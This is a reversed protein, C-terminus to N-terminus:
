IIIIDMHTCLKRWIFLRKETLHHKFMQNNRLFSIHGRRSLCGDQIYAGERSTGFTLLLGLHKIFDNCYPNSSNGGGGEGRPKWVLSSHVAIISIRLRLTSGRKVSRFFIETPPFAVYGSGKLEVSSLEMNHGKLPRHWHVFADDNTMMMMMMMMMIMAMTMIMTMMMKVTMIMVMTHDVESWSYHYKRRGATGDLSYQRKKKRDM